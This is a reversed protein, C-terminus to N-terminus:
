PRDLCHVNIVAIGYSYSPHPRLFVHCQLIVAACTGKRRTAISSAVSLRLGFCCCNPVAAGLTFKIRLSTSPTHPSSFLSIYTLLLAVPSLACSYHTVKNVAQRLEQPIRSLVHPVAVSAPAVKHIYRFTMVATSIQRVRTLYAAADGFMSNVLHCGRRAAMIGTSSDGLLRNNWLQARAGAGECGQYSPTSQSRFPSCSPSVIPTRFFAFPISRCFALCSSLQSFPVLCPFSALSFRYSQRCIDRLTGIGAEPPFLLLGIMPHVGNFKGLVPCSEFGSSGECDTMKVCVTCPASMSSDFEQALDFLKENNNSRRRM